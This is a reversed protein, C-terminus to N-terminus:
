DPQHKKHERHLPFIFGYHKESGLILFQIKYANGKQNFLDLLIYSSTHETENFFFSFSLNHVPLQQFTNNIYADLVQISNASDCLTINADIPTQPSQRNSVM